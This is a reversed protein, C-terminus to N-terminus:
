KLADQIMTVTGRDANIEVMSGIPLTFIRDMHGVMAGSWAPINLPKIYSDIISDLEKTTCCEKCNNDFYGFFFGSIRNLIGRKKMEDLLNSASLQWMMRDMRRCSEETDELFLIAGDWAPLYESAVMSTLVSLNGGLLKGQAIGSSITRIKADQPNVFTVNRVNFLLDKVYNNTFSPWPSYAGGMPGHFTVLGTKAHIALLLSTIDSFGIIIKPNNRISEYDILHLIKDCGWGGRVEFIAKIEPDKFMLNLDEAREEDTGAFDREANEEPFNKTASKYIHNGLKVKLGLKEIESKAMLIKNDITARYGSSVLGVTDGEKLHMPLVIDNTKTIDLESKHGYANNQCFQNKINASSRDSVIETQAKVAPLLTSNLLAFVVFLQKINLNMKKVGMTLQECGFYRPTDYRIADLKKTM